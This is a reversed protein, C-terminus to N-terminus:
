ARGESSTVILALDVSKLESPIADSWQIKHHCREGGAEIWRATAMELSSISPDVVTIKLQCKAGVLGQIYRSGLQGAGVLLVTYTM